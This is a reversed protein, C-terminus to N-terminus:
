LSDAFRYTHVAQLPLEGRMSYSMAPARTRVGYRESVWSTDLTLGSLDGGFVLDAVIPSRIQLALPGVADVELGPAFHLRGTAEVYGHGSLTDTVRLTGDGRDLEFARTHVVRQPLRTFGDHSVVLRVEDAKVEWAELRPDAVQRLRFLEVAEIPNIEQSAVAVTNHAATSRFANRAQVDASYLYTGPDVVIEPGRSLEYSLLDNHAHGGNGNQGVDGCRVVLHTGVANLAYLGGDQFAAGGALPPPKARHAHEWVGVGFNWAVEASPPGANPAATDLLGASAWLLHDHKHGRSSAAPLVRADDADGFAPTRGSPHRVALSVDSMRRLRERYDDSLPADSGECLWWAILFIEFALGHYGLSAEFGVGDDLVQRRIEREFARRAARGWQRAASDGALVTSLVLLGLINGLYHNSRLHPTGELNAAIHRGHVQLSTVVRSALREDLRGTGSIASLAWAWNAARIGVEMPNAWNIGAGAPNADLWSGLQRELETVYREDRFLAAARALALLQHGRSLDWPVKPDAIGIRSLVGVDQYFSPAWGAGSKFDRHWDIEPGLDTPGSGLLDFVHALARDAEVRVTQAAAQLDPNLEAVPPLSVELPMFSAGAPPSAVARSYRGRLRRERLRQLLRFPYHSVLLRPDSCVRALVAPRMPSIM